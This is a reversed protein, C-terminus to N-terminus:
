RAVFNGHFGFPVRHPLRATAVPGRDIGQTDLVVLDSRKEAERWVVALLWGDGEAADPSRPVFVPESTADGKPLAFVTRRSKELDYWAIMDLGSDPGSEGAIAGYRNRAGALRDDIRPFEGALEDLPTEAVADTGARPDLAWRVLRAETDAPPTPKGDARPFLSPAAYRMVDIMIRGAEEWANMVHFVFCSETRFWQLSAVGQDRRLVGIHTGLDPEWAFPPAGRMARDMSGTLPFIPFIAYNATVAFDHVMASFPAEFREFRSVRGARDIAGWTMGATFPGDASYGFFVLEGTVPDPKPHATFPGRLAGFDQNGITALSGAELEVPVHAEELALLRGAHRLINTNAVTSDEGLEQFPLARGAEAEARFKATRVWRNRYRVCGDGIAFAHVMGDGFFWHAMIPDAPPFQRDPGIRYLTGHLDKPLEGAIPLHPADCEIGIPAFNGTLGFDDTDPMATESGKSPLSAFRPLNPGRNWYTPQTPASANGRRPLRGPLRGQRDGGNSPMTDSSGSEAVFWGHM